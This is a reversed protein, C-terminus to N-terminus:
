IFLNTKSALTSIKSVVFSTCTSMKTPLLYLCQIKDIGFIQFLTGQNEVYKVNHNIEMILAELEIKTEKDFM